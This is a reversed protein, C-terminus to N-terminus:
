HPRVSLLKDKILIVEEEGGQLSCLLSCAPSPQAPSPQYLSTYAPHIQALSPQDPRTQDPRSQDLSPQAPRPQDSSTQAPSPQALVLSTKVTGPFWLLGLVALRCTHVAVNELFHCCLDNTWSTQYLLFGVQCRM